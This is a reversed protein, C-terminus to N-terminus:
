KQYEMYYHKIGAEEFADGKIVFGNKLYLNVATYQSHLYILKSFPIVDKLVEKLLITGLGKNRYKAPVAFRELKIGELTERWRATALSIENETLLYHHAIADYEDNELAADIHLGKVFVETRIHIAKGFLATDSYAFHIVSYM